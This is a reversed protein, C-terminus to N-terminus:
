RQVPFFTSPYIVAGSATCLLITKTSNLEAATLDLLYFGSALETPSNTTAGFAGGDLSVQCSLSAGTKPAGTTSDYARIPYDNFAQNKEFGQPFGLKIEGTTATIALDAFNAPFSQSLSYGTKDGVVQANADVRGSILSNPASGIWTRVDAPFSGADHTDLAAGDVRDVDATVRNTVSAVSGVVNGGVNGTVSGVSGTVNGTVTTVSPIVASTHTLQALIADGAPWIEYTQTSVTQTTAPSFTITDTAADFATIVRAQGAITGSTFVIIQGRWYDTDAETRAANVMTTTSGSDSTGSALSRIETSADAAIAAATITDSAMAGVSADIRGSVLAAPLRAQIDNTDGIIDGATQLTGGVHSTNVEPRGSSFTGAVGNYQTVNSKVVGSTFDLQGTGTGAQIPVLGSSLNIQGTGTGVSVPARNSADVDFTRGATTPRLGSRKEISFSCPVYGVVSSGGVTGTTIALDYNSGSAYGNGSTAVVRINHMGTRADFDVTLTIGATIETTSNDPYASVVPSGALTTPVGSTNVTTFKCDITEGLAIDGRYQALAPSAVGCVILLALLLRRM